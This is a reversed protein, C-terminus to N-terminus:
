GQMWNMVKLGGKRFIAIILPLSILFYITIGLSALAGLWGLAPREELLAFGLVSLVLAPMLNAFALPLPLALLLGTWAILVGMWRQSLPRRELREWRVKSIVREFRALALKIKGKQIEMRQLRQPIWPHPQGKAMQWGLGIIATGGAPAMPVNVGPILSPLALLLVLLGYTQEGARDLFEGLSLSGEEDLLTQLAVFLPAQPM